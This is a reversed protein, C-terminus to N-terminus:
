GGPVRHCRCWGHGRRRVRSRCGLRRRLRQRVGGGRRRGFGRLWTPHRRQHRRSRGPAPEPGAMPRPWSPARAAALVGRGAARERARPVGRCCADAIGWDSDVHRHWTCGTLEFSGDQAVEAQPSGGATGDFPVWSVYRVLPGDSAPPFVSVRGGLTVGDTVRVVVGELDGSVTIEAVGVFAKPPGGDTTRPWTRAPQMAVARYDGPPVRRVTFAGDAGTSGGHHSAVGADLDSSPRLTM